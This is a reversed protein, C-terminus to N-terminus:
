PAGIMEDIADLWAGLVIEPRFQAVRRRGAALLQDRLAEDTSMLHLMEAVHAPEDDTFTLGADGLTEPIAAAHRALVPVGFHMAELLPACFGEHLSTCVYVDAAGYWAVLDADPVRGAFRLRADLGLEGALKALAEGYAELGKDGGVVVFEAHPDIHALYYAAARLFTELSKNPAIRGVTLFTRRDARDGAVVIPDADLDYHSLDLALPLRRPAAFGASRLGDCNYESVGIAHHVAGTAALDRLEQGGRATLEAVEPCFPLLQSPPTLNHYVIGRVGAQDALRTSLPSPIAFHLLTLDDPGVRPTTEMTSVTDRLSDDITLAHVSAEYGRERLAAALHLASGGTADGAHAAPLWQVVRKASM